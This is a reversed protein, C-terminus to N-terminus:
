APQKAATAAGTPLSVTGSVNTINWAGSQAAQTAFTGANTVAHSPISAVSVPLPNASSVDGDNSGDAGIVIKSRPFKVGGIDDTALTDGGSGSDLTTNDAM